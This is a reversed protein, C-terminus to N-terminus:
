RMWTSICDQALLEEPFVLTEWWSYIHYHHLHIMRLVLSCSLYIYIYKVSENRIKFEKFFQDFISCNLNVLGNNPIYKSHYHFLNGFKCDSGQFKELFKCALGYISLPPM